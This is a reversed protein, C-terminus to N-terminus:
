SVVCCKCCGGGSGEANDSDGGDEGKKEDKEDEDDDGVEDVKEDIDVADSNDDDIDGSDDVFEDDDNQNKTLVVFSQAEGADVEQVRVTGEPVLDSESTGCEYYRRSPSIRDAVNGNECM